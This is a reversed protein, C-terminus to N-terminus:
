RLVVLGGEFGNAAPGLNAQRALHSKIVDVVEKGIAASDIRMISLGREAQCILAYLAQEYQTGNPMKAWQEKLAIVAEAAKIEEQIAFWETDLAKIHKPLLAFVNDM